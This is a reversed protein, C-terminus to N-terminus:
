EGVQPADSVNLDIKASCGFLSTIITIIEMLKMINKVMRMFDGRMYFNKLANM